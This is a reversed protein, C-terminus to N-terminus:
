PPPPQDAQQHQQLTRGAPIPQAEEQILRILAVYRPVNAIPLSPDDHLLLISTFADERAPVATTFFAPTVRLTGGAYRGVTRSLGSATARHSQGYVLAGARAEVDTAPRCSTPLLYTISDAVHSLRSIVATTLALDAGPFARAVVDIIGQPYPSGAYQAATQGAWMAALRFRYTARAIADRVPDPDACGSIPDAPPTPRYVSIGLLTDIYFSYSEANDLAEETSLRSYIREFPYARDRPTESAPTLAARAGLAPIVAHVTEHILTSVSDQNGITISQCFYFHNPEAHAAVFSAGGISGTGCSPDNPRPAHVFLSGQGGLERSMRAFRDALLTAYGPDRTAFHAQLTDGVTTNSAPAAAFARTQAEARALRDRASDVAWQFGALQDLVPRVMADLAPDRQSQVSGTTADRQLGYIANNLLTALREAGRGALNYESLHAIIDPVEAAVQQQRRASIDVERQTFTTRIGANLPAAPNTELWRLHNRRYAAEESDRVDPALGAANAHAEEIALGFQEIARAFAEGLHTQQPSEAPFNIMPNDSRQAEFVSITNDLLRGLIEESLINHYARPGAASGPTTRLALAASERLTQVYDAMAALWSAADDVIDSRAAPAAAPQRLIAPGGSTGAVDLMQAGRAFADSLRDAERERADDPASVALPENAAVARQQVVHVLEHALLRRGAATHPALAGGGFVVHHGATYALADIARASDAAQADSHVRVHGFDHAFRREFVARTAADLPRGPSQLVDRIRQAPRSSAPKRAFARM